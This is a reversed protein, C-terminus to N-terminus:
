PQTKGAKRTQTPQQLLPAMPSTRRPPLGKDKDLQVQLLAVSSALSSISELIRDLNVTGPGPVEKGGENDPFEQETKDEDKGEGEKASDKHGSYTEWLEAKDEVAGM